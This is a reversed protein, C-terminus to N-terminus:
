TGPDTPSTRALHAKIMVALARVSIPKSMYDDMGAALCRERDGPMAFSTLAIIPTKAHGPLRRIARTAEFGDMVPMQVDMLILDFSTERAHALAEAGDHAVTIKHGKASLFDCVVAINAPNDEAVLIHGRRSRVRESPPEPVPGGDKAAEERSPAWPFSVTFRSGRGPESDLSVRGGHMEVLRKVISLGLGTGGHRKTMTSELQTFPKFLRAQEELSIGEGSDAVSISMMGREEDAATQVEVWGGEATFKIANSLLNFLVQRLRRPDVVVSAAKPDLRTRLEVGRSAAHEDMLRAASLCAEPVNVRECALTVKGAEIKALDLLDNILLLLHRGSEEIRRLAGKQREELPGYVGMGLSEGMGLIANLPTRLEHSMNALFEDKQRTAEALQRNAEELRKEREVLETVDFNIGVFRGPGGSEGPLYLARTQLVRTAGDPTCFSFSTRFEGDGAMSERSKREVEDAIADGVMARWAEISVPRRGRPIGYLDFMRDDWHIGGNSIDYSWVGIHGAELAMELQRSLLQVRREAERRATIDRTVVVTAGDPLRSVDIEADFTTGDARVATGDGMWGSAHSKEAPIMRGTQEDFLERWGRDAPFDGFLRIHTPNRYIRIGAAYIAIAELSNELAAAQRSVEITRAEVRAELDANLAALREKAEALARQADLRATIDRAFGAFGTHRGRGDRFPTITLEIWYPSGNRRYNLIEASVPELRALQESIHKRVGPDTGAGQLVKGPDKGLMEELPFGSLAEQAPNAWTVRRDTDTRMIAFAAQQVTAALLRNEEEAARRLLFGVALNGFVALLQSGTRARPSSSPWEFGAFGVAEEGALLPMALSEAGHRGSLVCSCPIAADSGRRVVPSREQRAADAVCACVEDIHAPDLAGVVAEAGPALWELATRGGVSPRDRTALYAREAGVFEGLRRLADRLVGGGDESPTNVLREAIEMLITRLEADRRLATAAERLETIDQVVGVSRLPTGDPAREHVCREFVHRVEGSDPRVIRHEIEFRGHGERLSEEFSHAVFDRDAPPVLAMTSDYSPAFEGPEVGHIRYTEETWDILGTAHTLTWCGLRAIRQAETLLTDREHLAREYDSREIAEAIHGAVAELLGFEEPLFAEGGELGRDERYSADLVGGGKCPIPVSARWATDQFGGNEVKIGGAEIHVGAAEPFRFGLPLISAVAVLAQRPDPERRLAEACAYLCRTEKAREVLALEARKRADIDTHTGAMRLPTGDPAREVVRGVSLIWRYTGDACRQRFEVAYEHTKGDVYDQYAGAVVERDDPHLREIWAVNTERFEAPDYGLMAAYEPSVVAEGTAIDLDYIGQKAARLALALREESLRLAEAAARRETIDLDIGRYAVARGEEDRVPFGATSVWRPTGDRSLMCNEYATVELAERLARLGTERVEEMHEPPVLDYFTKKGVIEKPAYGLVERISPSVYSYLGTKGDVEWAFARAISMLEAYRLNSEVLAEEALKRSTIDSHTGFMFLPQGDPTRSVVRGHDRVWIWRGDRHRLRCDCDYYDLEGAFHRRLMENSKALDDPHAFRQWTGISVPSIEELTYGIMAAWREDFVTEGTQVNWQWTAANTALLVNELRGLAEARAREAEHRDTIDFCTALVRMAGGLRVATLFVQDWRYQGSKHRFKWLFSELGSQAAKRVLARGEEFSYPPESWFPRELLEGFSDLGYLRWAAPNADLIEGTDADHILMAAPSDLFLAKFRAESERLTAEGRRRETLDRCFCVIRGGFADVVVVSVEVPFTSGDKRRHISEFTESGTAIIRHLREVTEEPTEIADLGAPTMGVLEARSYGSMRCYADNVEVMRGDFDLTWFGDPTNSLITRLYAEDDRQARRSAIRQLGSSLERALEQFLFREDEDAVIAGPVSAALVGYCHGQYVLPCTFSVHGAGDCRLPCEPCQGGGSSVVVAGTSISERACRPLRGALVPLGLAEREAEGLGFDAFGECPYGGPCGVTKAVEPGLLAAWSCHYGLVEVMARCIDGALALPDDRDFSLDRIRRLVDLARRM